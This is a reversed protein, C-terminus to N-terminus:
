FVGDSSVRYYVSHTNVCANYKKAIKKMAKKTESSAPKKLAEKVEKETMNKCDKKLLLARPNNLLLAFRTVYRLAEDTADQDLAIIIPMTGFDVIENAREITIRTGLLAVSNAYSSVRIASPIDEVIYTPGDAHTRYWSLGLGEEIFSLVKTRAPGLARLVWGTHVDAASRVSMAVRGGYDTTWYWSEPASIGWLTQVEEAVKPPLEHTTGEWTLREKPNTDSKGFTARNTAGTIGCKSRFCNWVLGEHRTISLSKEATTGGHCMPCITRLSQGETLESGLFIISTNISM